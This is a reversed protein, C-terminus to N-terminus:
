GRPAEHTVIRYSFADYSLFALCLCVISLLPSPFTSHSLTICSNIPVLSAVNRNLMLVLNLYSSSHFELPLVLIVLACEIYSCTFELSLACLHPNPVSVLSVSTVIPLPGLMMDGVREGTADHGSRRGEM